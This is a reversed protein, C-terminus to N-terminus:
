RNFPWITKLKDLFKQHFPWLTKKAAKPVIVEGQAAQGSLAPAWLERLLPKVNSGDVRALGPPLHQMIYVTADHVARSPDFEPDQAAENLFDILLAKLAGEYGSIDPPRYRM